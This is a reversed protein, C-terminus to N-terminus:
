DLGGDRLPLLESYDAEGGLAKIARDLLQRVTLMEAETERFTPLTRHRYTELEPFLALWQYIQFYSAIRM